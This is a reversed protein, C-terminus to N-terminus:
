ESILYFNKEDQFVEYIRIIHPHDITRLLQFEFLMKGQNKKDVKNRPIVLTVDHISKMARILGSKKHQVKFVQGYGGEGIRNLIRYYDSFKGNNESVFSEYGIKIDIDVRSSSLQAASKVKNMKRTVNKARGAIMLLHKQALKQIEEMSIDQKVASWVKPPSEVSPNNVVDMDDVSRSRGAVQKIALTSTNCPIVNIKYRDKEPLANLMMGNIIRNSTETPKYYMSDKKTLRKKIKRHSEPQTELGAVIRRVPASPPEKLSRIPHYSNASHQSLENDQIQTTRKVLNQNQSVNDNTRKTKNGLSQQMNREGVSKNDYEVTM